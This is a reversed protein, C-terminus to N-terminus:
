CGFRRLRSPPTRNMPNRPLRIGDSLRAFYYFFSTDCSHTSLIWRFCWQLFVFQFLLTAEIRSLRQSSRLSSAIGAIWNSEIARIAAGADRARLSKLDVATLLKNVVVLKVNRTNYNEFRLAIEFNPVCATRVTLSRKKMTLWYMAPQRTVSFLLQKWLIDRRSM